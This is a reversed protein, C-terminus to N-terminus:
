LLSIFIKKELFSAASLSFSEFLLLSSLLSSDFLLLLSFDFSSLASSSSFAFFADFSSSRFVISLPLSNLSRLLPFMVLYYFIKKQIKNRLYM